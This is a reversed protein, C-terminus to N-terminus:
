VLVAAIVASGIDSQRIPITLQMPLLHHFTQITTTAILSDPVEAAPSAPAPPPSKMAGSFLERPQPRWQLEGLTGSEREFNLVTLM